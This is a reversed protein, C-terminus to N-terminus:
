RLHEVKQQGNDQGDVLHGRLRVVLKTIVWIDDKGRMAMVQDGDKYVIV